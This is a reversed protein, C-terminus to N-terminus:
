VRERCSARGIQTEDTSSGIADPWGVIEDGDTSPEVGLRFTQIAIEPLVACWLSLAPANEIERGDGIIAEGTCGILREPALHTHIAELLSWPDACLQPSAFIVALSPTAGGLAARARTAVETAAAVPDPNVSLAVAFKSQRNM